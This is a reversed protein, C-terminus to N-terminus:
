RVVHRILLPLGAATAVMLLLIPNRLLHRQRDDQRGSAAKLRDSGDKSDAKVLLMTINGRCTVTFRKLIQAALTSPCHQWWRSRAGGRSCYTSCRLRKLVHLHTCLPRLILSASRTCRTRATRSRTMPIESQCQCSSERNVHVAASM